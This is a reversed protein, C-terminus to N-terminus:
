KIVFDEESDSLVADLLKNKGFKSKKSGTKKTTIEDDQSQEMQSEEQEESNAIFDSDSSQKKKSKKNEQKEALIEDVDTLNSNLYLVIIILTTVPTGFHGRTVTTM